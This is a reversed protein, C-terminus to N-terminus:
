CASLLSFQSVWFFMVVVKLNKKQRKGRRWFNWFILPITRWFHFNNRSKWLWSDYAWGGPWLDGAWLRHAPGPTSPPTLGSPGPAPESIEAAIIHLPHSVPALQTIYHAGLHYVPSFRQFYGVQFDRSNGWYVNYIVSTCQTIHSHREQASLPWLQASLSLTLVSGPQAWGM